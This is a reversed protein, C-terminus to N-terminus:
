GQAACNDGGAKNVETFEWDFFIHDVTVKEGRSVFFDWIALMESYNFDTVGNIKKSFTAYTTDIVRAMKDFNMGHKAMLARLEPFTTM